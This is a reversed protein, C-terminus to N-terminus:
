SLRVFADKEANYQVKGADTAMAVGSAGIVLLSAPAYEALLRAICDQASVSM